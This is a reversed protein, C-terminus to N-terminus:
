SYPCNSRQFAAFFLSYVNSSCRSHALCKVLTIILAIKKGPQSWSIVGAGKWLHNLSSLGASPWVNLFWSAAGPSLDSQKGFWMVEKGPSELDLELAWSLWVGWFLRAMAEKTNQLNAGHLFDHVPIFLAPPSQIGIHGKKSCEGTRKGSKGRRKWQVYWTDDISERQSMPMLPPLCFFSLYLHRRSWRWASSFDTRSVKPIACVQHNWLDSNAEKAKWWWSYLM